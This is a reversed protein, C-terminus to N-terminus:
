CEARELTDAREEQRRHQDIGIFEIGARNKEAGSNGPDQAILVLRYPESHYSAIKPYIRTTM